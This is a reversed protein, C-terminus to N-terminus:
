DRSGSTRELFNFGDAEFWGLSYIRKAKKYFHKSKV